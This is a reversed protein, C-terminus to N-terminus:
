LTQNCQNHSQKQISTLNQKTPHKNQKNQKNTQKKTQKNTQKNTWNPDILEKASKEPNNIKQKKTQKQKNIQWDVPRDASAQSAPKGNVWICGNNEPQENVGWEM